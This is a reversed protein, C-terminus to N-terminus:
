VRVPDGCEVIGAQRGRRQKAPVFTRRALPDSLHDTWERSARFVILSKALCQSDEQAAARAEFGSGLFEMKVEIGHLIAHIARDFTTASRDAIVPEVDFDRQKERM